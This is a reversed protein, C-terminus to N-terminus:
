RPKRASALIGPFDGTKGVEIDVFGAEFCLDRLEDDSLGQDAVFRMFYETVFSRAPPLTWRWRNVFNRASARTCFKDAELIFARGGPNLVRFIESVGRPQDPWHKVSALSMAVDFSGEDFPLALADGKRFSLNASGAHIGRAKEIMRDSLDVGTLEVGPHRTAVVGAMVGAGCGVDLVRVGPVLLDPPITADLSEEYIELLAPMVVINYLNSLRANWAGKMRFINM